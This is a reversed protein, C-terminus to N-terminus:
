KRYSSVFVMTGVQLCRQDSPRVATKHLFLEGIGPVSLFGYAGKENWFILEGLFRGEAEVQVASLDNVLQWADGAFLAPSERWCDELSRYLLVDSRIASCNFLWYLTEQHSPPSKYGSQEKPRAWISVTMKLFRAPDEYTFERENNFKQPLATKVTLGLAAMVKDAIQEAQTGTVCRPCRAIEQYVQGFPSYFLGVFDVTTILEGSRSLRVHRRQGPYHNLRPSGNTGGRPPRTADTSLSNKIGISSKKPLDEVVEINTTSNGLVSIIEQFYGTRASGLLSSFFQRIPHQELRKEDNTPAPSLLLPKKAAKADTGPGL